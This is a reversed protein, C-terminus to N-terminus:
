TAPLGAGGAQPWPSLAEFVAFRETAAAAWTPDPEVLQGTRVWRRAGEFSPELDAAMRALYAAGLAAGEPVAVTEVPLGTADAVARMWALSRSGGGAAVVRRGAQGSRELLRRIVFGSAEYAGRMISAPGQTIDLGHVSARLEPDDFPAREGRLYPLWIPVRDADGHRDGAWSRPRSGPPPGAGVQRGSTATRPGGRVRAGLQLARQVWDVFLAGANSPGGVLVCGPETHPLTMYGPIAEVSDAVMADKVVWVVLTAGFIALVDGAHDAGAVIQECFADVSGGAVATATGPIRAAPRGMPHVVSLRSTEVGLEELLTKDWRGGRFLRGFSTATAGDVAPTGGLAWTAVAQCPWYGTADPRARIAWRLMGEGESEGRAARAGHQTHARSDGYLLGPLVPRGRPDVATMSPVMATVAVGAPPDDFERTVQAFARRPGRRWAREADHELQGVSPADVGHLVRTRALVTGDEDVAVAKVSTTGVDVGM